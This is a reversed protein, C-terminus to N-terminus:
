EQQTNVDVWSTAGGATNIPQWGTNVYSLVGTGAVAEAGVLELFIPFSSTRGDASVGTLAIELAQSNTLTGGSASALASSLNVVQDNSTTFTGGFAEAIASSLAQTLTQSATLTGAL